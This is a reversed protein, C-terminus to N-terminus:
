YKLIYKSNNVKASLITVQRVEHYYQDNTHFGAEKVGAIKITETFSYNLANWRVVATITDPISKSLYMELLSTQTNYMGNKDQTISGQIQITDSSSYPIPNVIVVPPDPPTTWTPKVAEKSCSALLLLILIKKM